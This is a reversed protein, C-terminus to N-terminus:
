LCHLLKSLANCGANVALATLGRKSGFSSQFRDSWSQAGEIFKVGSRTTGFQTTYAGYLTKFRRSDSFQGLKYFVSRLVLFAGVLIGFWWCVTELPADTSRAYASLGLAALIFLFAYM